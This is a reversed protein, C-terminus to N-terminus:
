GSGAPDFDYPTRRPDHCLVVDGGAAEFARVQKTSALWKDRDDAILSAPFGPARGPELGALLWQADVAYLLPVRLTAFLLGFHGDAHGPLDVALVSGDGFIDAGGELGHPLARNSCAQLASFRTDFDKPLLETFVGHRLNQRNTKAKIRSWAAGNGIFRANKFLSLQAVHDAHFHTVIVLRVDDPQYGYRALLRAPQEADNLVPSLLYNYIKLAASRGDDEASAPGYGTDILVPGEDPHEILGYRVRLRRKLWRGGSLILRERAEVTASNAFVVKM